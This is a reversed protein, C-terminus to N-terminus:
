QKAALGFVSYARTSPPWAAMIPSRWAYAAWAAVALAVLSAAWALRLGLMPKPKAPHAALREMASQRPLAVTAVVPEEAVPEPEPAPPPEAVDVPADVPMWKESCRACRVVRGPTVLSDPVEYAASCSPCVIRM